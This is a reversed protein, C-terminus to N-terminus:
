PKVRELPNRSPHPDARGFPGLGHGKMQSPALVLAFGCSGEFGAGLDLELGRNEGPAATCLDKVASM